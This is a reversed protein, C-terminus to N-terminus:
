RAPERGRASRHLEAVFHDISEHGNRFWRQGVRVQRRPILELMTWRQAYPTLILEVPVWRSVTTRRLTGTLAWVTGVLRPVELVLHEDDHDRERWWTALADPLAVGAVEVLRRFSPSLGKLPHTAPNPMRAATPGVTMGGIPAARPATPAPREGTMRATVNDLPEVWIEIVDPRRSRAM